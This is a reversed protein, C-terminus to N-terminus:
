ENPGPHNCQGCGSENRDRVSEPLPPHVTSPHLATGPARNVMVGHYPNMYAFDPEVKLFAVEFDPISNYISLRLNFGTEQSVYTLIPTWDRHVALGTFQPVVAWSYVAQRAQQSGSERPILVVTLFVVSIFLAHIKRSDLHKM